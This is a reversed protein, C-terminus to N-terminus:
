IANQISKVNLDIIIKDHHCAKGLQLAPTVYPLAANVLRKDTENVLDVACRSGTLRANQKVYAGVEFFSESDTIKGNTKVLVVM